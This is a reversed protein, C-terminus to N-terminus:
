SSPSAASWPTRSARSWRAWAGPARGGLDDQLKGKRAFGLLQRNLQAAGSPPAASSRRLGRNLDEDRAQGAPPHRQGAGPHPDVPQQLRPRRRRRPHRNAEMKDKQFLQQRQQEITETRRAVEAELRENQGRLDAEFHRLSARSRSLLLAVVCSLLSMSVPPSAVAVILAHSAGPPHRVTVFARGARDHRDVAAGGRRVPGAAHDGRAAGRPLTFLFGNAQLPDLDVNAFLSMLIGFSAAAYAVHWRHPRPGRALSWLLPHIAAWALLMARMPLRWEPRLLEMPFAAVGLALAGSIPLLLSFALRRLRDLEGSAEIRRGPLDRLWALPSV